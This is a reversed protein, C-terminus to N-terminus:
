LVESPLGATKAVEIGYSRSAPGDKLVHLFRVDGCTEQIAMHGNKLKGSFKESMKALEHYHTAFLCISKSKTIIFELIAEALAMGDFTSTGRGVEDLIVLSKSDADKLLEATEIMEVMFTSQGSWLSDSAGIRTYLRTLLQLNAERAPVFLGCQAMLSTLAVQRMLTSKGAMNPGTLLLTGSKLLHIDNPTFANGSLKEVVLHRSGLIQIGDAQFRPRVLRAEVSLWAMSTVLDLEALRAAFRHIVSFKQLISNRLASFIEFEVESRKVRASLIRGELEILEPTVFREGNVLTQKRQYTAPVRTLNSNSIEIYYGFVSNYRVKLSAIGTKEKEETEMKLLLGDVNENLQIWEDLDARYGVRVFGGQKASNPCDENLARDLEQALDGIDGFANSVEGSDLVAMGILLSKKLEELDRPSAGSSSIKSLRREIDGMKGLASRIVQVESLKPVWEEIQDLREEILRKQVLPFRLWKKLLRAGSFTKTVNLVGFLSGELQGSYNEFIELHRYTQNSVTLHAAVERSEFGPLGKLFEEGMSEGVYNRLRLRPDEEKRSTFSVPWPFQFDTEKQSPGLIIERPQFLFLLKETEVASTIAYEIAEGLSTEVFVLATESVAALYRHQTGELQTPDLVMGPSVIRTVARRVLGKALHAEEVQDCIAVKFGLGVLKNIHQAASHHPVGCMPTEDASKKNRSTLAVGMLPAALVADEFFLEYFDGMRFFLIKDTHQSKIDWYQKMLPTLNKESM